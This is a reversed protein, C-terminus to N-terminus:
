SGGEKKILHLTHLTEVHKAVKKDIWEGLCKGNCFHREEGDCGIDRSSWESKSPDKEDIKNPYSICLRGNKINIHVENKFDAGCNDCFYAYRRGM